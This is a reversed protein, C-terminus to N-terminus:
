LNSILRNFMWESHSVLLDIVTFLAHERLDFYVSKKGICHESIVKFRDYYTMYEQKVGTIM